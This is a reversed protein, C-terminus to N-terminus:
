GMMKRSKEGREKGKERKRERQEHQIFDVFFEKTRLSLLLRKIM